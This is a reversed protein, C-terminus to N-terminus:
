GSSLGADGTAQPFCQPLFNQGSSLLLVEYVYSVCIHMHSMCVHVCYSSSKSSASYLECPMHNGWLHQQVLRGASM